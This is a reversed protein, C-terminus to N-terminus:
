PLFRDFIENMNQAIIVDFNEKSIVQGKSVEM